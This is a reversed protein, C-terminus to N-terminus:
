ESKAVPDPPIKGQMAVTLRLMNTLLRKQLDIPGNKAIRDFVAVCKKFKRELDQRDAQARIAARRQIFDTLKAEAREWKKIQTENAPVWAPLKLKKIPMDPHERMAADLKTKLDDARVYLRKGIRKFQERHIRLQAPVYYHTPIRM